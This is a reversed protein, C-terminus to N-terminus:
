ERAYYKREEMDLTLYLGLYFPARLIDTLKKDSPLIFGYTDTKCLEPLCESDTLLTRIIAEM